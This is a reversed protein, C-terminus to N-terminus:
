GAVMLVRVGSEDLWRAVDSPRVGEAVHMWPKGHCRCAALTCKSGASHINGFILVADADRVNADTRARLGEAGRAGPLERAGYLEAYEPHLGDEAWLREPMWGGTPVGAAGAARAAGIDAGTQFGCIIRDIM